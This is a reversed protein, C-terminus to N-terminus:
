KLIIRGVVNPGGFRDKRKLNEVYNKYANIM